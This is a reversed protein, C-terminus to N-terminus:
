RGRPLRAALRDPPRSTPPSLPLVGGLPGVAVARRGLSAPRTPQIRDTHSGPRALCGSRTTPEVPVLTAGSDVVVARARFDAMVPGARTAANVRLAPLATARPNIKVM